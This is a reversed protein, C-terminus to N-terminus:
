PIRTCIVQKNPSYNILQWLSYLGSAPLTTLIHTGEMETITRINNPDGMPSPNECLIQLIREQQEFCLQPSEWPKVFADPVPTSVPDQFNLQQMMIMTNIAVEDLIIVQSWDDPSFSIPELFKLDQLNAPNVIIPPHPQTYPIHYSSSASAEIIPYLTVLRLHIADQGYDVLTILWAGEMTPNPDTLSTVGVVLMTRDPNTSSTPKPTPTREQIDPPKPPEMIKILFYGAIIGAAISIIFLLLCGTARNM